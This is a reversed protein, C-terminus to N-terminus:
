RPPARNPAQPRNAVNFGSVKCGWVRRVDRFTEVAERNRFASALGDVSNCVKESPLDAVASGADCTVDIEMTGKRRAMPVKWLSRPSPPPPEVRERRFSIPKRSVDWTLSLKELGEALSAMERPSIWQTLGEPFKTSWTGYRPDRRGAQRFITPTVVNDQPVPPNYVFRVAYNREHLWERLVAPSRVGQGQVVGHPFALAFLLLSSRSIPM